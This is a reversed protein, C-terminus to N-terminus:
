WCVQVKFLLVGADGNVFVQVEALLMCQADMSVCMQVEGLQVILSNSICVEMERLLVYADGTVFVQVLVFCWVQVKLLMHVPRCPFSAAGGSRSVPAALLVPLACSTSGGSLYIQMVVLTKHFLDVSDFNRVKSVESSDLVGM